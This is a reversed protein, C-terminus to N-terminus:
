PQGGHPFEGGASCKMELPKGRARCGERACTEGERGPAGCGKCGWVVRVRSVREAFPRECCEGPAAHRTKCCEAVYYVKVCVKTKEPKRRCRACTGDADLGEQTLLVDCTGCYLGDRVDKLDCEVEGPDQGGWVLLVWVAVTHMLGGSLGTM